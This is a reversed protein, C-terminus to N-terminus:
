PKITMLFSIDNNYPSDIGNLVRFIFECEVGVPIIQSVKGIHFQYMNKETELFFTKKKKDYAFVLTNEIDKNFFSYDIINKEPIIALCFLNETKYKMFSIRPEFILKPKDIYTHM